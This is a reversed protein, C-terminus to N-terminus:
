EVKKGEDLLISVKESFEKSPVFVLGDPSDLVVVTNQFEVIKGQIGNIKIRQGVKYNQRLYHSAIINSVATRAGLGFALAAGGIMAGLLITTLYILLTSDIGIQDLAIVIAILIISYKVGQSIFEAQSIGLSEKKALISSRALNSIVIGALIILITAFVDPLYKVVSRLAETVVPMNLANTAAAFFVLFVTWFVIRGVGVSVFWDLRTDKSIEKEKNRSIKKILGALLRVTLSRLIWAVLWGVILLAFVKLTNPLYGGLDLGFEKLNKSLNAFWEIVNM